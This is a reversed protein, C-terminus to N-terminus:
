VHSRCVVHLVSSGRRVEGGRAKTRSSEAGKKRGWVMPPIVCARTDTYWEYLIIRGNNFHLATTLSGGDTRISTRSRRWGDTWLIYQGHFQQIISCLVTSNCLIYMKICIKCLICGVTRACCQLQQVATGHTRYLLM